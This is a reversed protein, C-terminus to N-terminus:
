KRAKGLQPEARIIDKEVDALKKKLGEIQNDNNAINITANHV